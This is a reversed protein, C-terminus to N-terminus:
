EDDDEEKDVEKFDIDEADLGNFDLASGTSMKDIAALVSPHMKLIYTNSELKKPDFKPDTDKDFGGIKIMQKIVALELAGDKDKIARQQLRKLDEEILYRKAEKQNQFINGFISMADNVFRYATARSCGKGDFSANMMVQMAQERSHYNIMLNWAKYIHNRVEEQKESLTVSNEGKLYYKRIKDTTTEKQRTVLAGEAM